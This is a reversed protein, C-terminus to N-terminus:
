CRRWRSRATSGRCGRRRVRTRRCRRHPQPPRLPVVGAGRRWLPATSAPWSIPTTAPPPACTPSSGTSAPRDVIALRTSRRLVGPADGPRTGVLEPAADPSRWGGPDLNLVLSSLAATEAQLDALLEEIMTPRAPAVERHDGEHDRDHRRLDHHHPRRRLRPRDPVRAHLRLRRPAAPVRDVVRKQLETCWWKAM